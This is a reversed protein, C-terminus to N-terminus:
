LELSSISAISAFVNSRIPSISSLFSKEGEIRKVLEEDDEVETDTVLATVYDGLLRALEVMEVSKEQLLIMSLQSVIVPVLESRESHSIYGLVVKTLFEGLLLRREATACGKMESPLGLMINKLLPSLVIKEEQDVEMEDSTTM